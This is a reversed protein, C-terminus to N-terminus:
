RAVLIDINKELIIALISNWLDDEMNGDVITVECNKNISAAVQLISNSLRHKGDASRPNFLLARM